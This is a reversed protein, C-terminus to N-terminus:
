LLLNALEEHAALEVALGFQGDALQVLVREVGAAPPRGALLVQLLRALRRRRPRAPDRERPTGLVAARVEVALVVAHAHVEVRELVDEGVGALPEDEALLEPGLLR